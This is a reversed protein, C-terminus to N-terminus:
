KKNEDDEKTDEIDFGNSKEKNYSEEVNTFWRWRRLEIAKLVRFGLVKTKGVGEDM